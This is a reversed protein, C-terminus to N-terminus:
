YFFVEVYVNIMSYVNVREMDFLFLKWYLVIENFINNKFKFTALLLAHM